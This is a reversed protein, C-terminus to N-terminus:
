TLVTELKDKNLIAVLSMGLSEIRLRITNKGIREIRGIQGKLPGMTVKAISEVKFDIISNSTESLFNKINEIEIDRVIAPKGLYIVFRVFGRVSYIMDFDKRAANVFVYSTFLIVDVM